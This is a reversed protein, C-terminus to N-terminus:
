ANEMVRALDAETLERWHPPYDRLRRIAFESEFLLSPGRRDFVSSLGYVLWSVGDVSLRRADRRGSAIDNRM